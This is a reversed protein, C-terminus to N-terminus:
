EVAAAEDNTRETAIERWTHNRGRRLLTDFLNRWAAELYCSLPDYKRWMVEGRGPGAWTSGVRM